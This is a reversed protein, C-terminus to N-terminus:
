LPLNWMPSSSTIFVRLKVNEAHGDVFLYNAGDRHRKADARNYRVGVSTNSDNFGDGDMDVNLSWQKASSIIEDTADGILFVTSPLIGLRTAKTNTSGNYYCFPYHHSDLQNGYHSGYDFYNKNESPCDLVSGTNALSGNSFYLLDVKASPVNCYPAIAATFRMKRGDWITAGFPLFGNNSDTYFVLGVGIQKLNSICQISKAFERSKSLAPLLMAALIAIIAIVVLLEILTFHRFHLLNRKISNTKHDIGDMSSKGTRREWPKEDNNMRRHKSPYNYMKIERYMTIIAHYGITM